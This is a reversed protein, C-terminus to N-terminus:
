PNTGFRADRGQWPAVLPTANCFVMAMLGERSIMQAWYAAAGFHNAERAAVSAMGYREAMRIVHECCIKSTVQGMGNRADFVMCAGDEGIVKGRTVPDFNGARIQAAYPPILQVGHSDVARLNAAVLSDATLAADEASLGAASLLATSFDRLTHHSVRIGTDEAAM